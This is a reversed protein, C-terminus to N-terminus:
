YWPFAGIVTMDVVKWRLEADQELFDRQFALMYYTARIDDESGEIVEGVKNRVCNIQQCMFQFAVTSNGKGADPKITIVEGQRVDLVHPDLVIGDAKRQRIESSLKNFCAEGTWLMLEDADGRLFASMFDPLFDEQIGSKWDELSFSPDLRRLERVGIGIENEATMSDWASSVKYVLPHQSTEWAEQADEVKDKVADTAAKAGRGLSGKAVVRSAGLLEQIIPAENLREQLRKWAEGATKVIMLSAVGGKEEGKEEEEKEEAEGEGEGKGESTKAKKVKPQKLKKVVAREKNETKDTGVLEASARTFNEQLGRVSEKIKALVSNEDFVKKTESFKEKSARVFENEAEQEKGEGEKEREDRASTGGVKGLNEKLTKKVGEMTDQFVGGAKHATESASSAYKEAEGQMSKVRSKAEEALKKEAEKMRALNDKLSPNKDVEEEFTKRFRDFM